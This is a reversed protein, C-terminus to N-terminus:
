LNKASFVFYEEPTDHGLIYMPRFTAGAPTEAKYMPTRNVEKFGLSSILLRIPMNSALVHCFIRTIGLSEKAWAYLRESAAFAVGAPTAPVTMLADVVCEHKQFDFDNLGIHGFVRNGQMIFFLVFDQNNELYDHMAKKIFDETVEVHSLFAHPSSKRLGTLFTIVEPRQIDASTIAKLTYEEGKHTFPLMLGENKAKAIDELVCAKYKLWGAPEVQAFPLNPKNLLEKIVSCIYEVEEQTRNHGSPLLVARLGIGYAVPNNAKTFMPMSSLPYFAPRCFVKSAQLRQMFHHRLMSPNELFLVNTLFSSHSGEQETNLRVGEVGHLHKAYWGAIQRKKEVLEYVREIQAYALAAQPNSMVCNYGAVDYMFPNESSQGQTGLKVAHLFLKQDSSLLIGGEGAVAVEGGNFSFVSFHGFSGAPRDKYLSGLGQTADELVFLGNANAVALLSAIDCPQGFLHAMIMGKTKPTINAKASKASLCLTTADVDCFVPTAGTHLVCSAASIDAIEPVLVEDGPGVGLALLALHIAVTRNSTAFAHARQTYRGMAQQLATIYGTAKMNWGVAAASAACEIERHTISPGALLIPDVFSSFPSSM